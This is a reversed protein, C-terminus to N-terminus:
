ACRLTGELYGLYSIEELAADVEEQSYGEAKLIEDYNIKIRSKTEKYEPLSHFFRSLRSFSWGKFKEFAEHILNEEFPSLASYDAGSLLIVDNGQLSLHKNWISDVPYAVLDISDNVQSVIPGYPISFLNDFFVPQGSGILSQREIYYMVKNLWYKDCKGGSLELLMAAVAIAKEEKFRPIKLDTMKKSKENNDKKVLFGSGHRPAGETKRLM